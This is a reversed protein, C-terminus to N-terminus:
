GVRGHLFGALADASRDTSNLAPMESSGASGINCMADQVQTHDLVYGLAHPLKPDSLPAAVSPPLM